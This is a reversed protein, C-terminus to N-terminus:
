CSHDIAMTFMNLTVILGGFELFTFNNYQIPCWNLVSRTFFCEFCFLDTCFASVSIMVFLVGDISKFSIHSSRMHSRAHSWFPLMSKLLPNAMALSPLMRTNQERLCGLVFQQILGLISLVNVRSLGAYNTYNKECCTYLSAVFNVWSSLSDVRPSRNHYFFTRM